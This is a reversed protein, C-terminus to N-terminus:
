NKILLIIKVMMHTEVCGFCWRRFGQGSRQWPAQLRGGHEGGLGQWMGRCVPLTAEQLCHFRRGWFWCAERRWGHVHGQTAVAQRLVCQVSCVACQVGCVACEVSDHVACQVSCVACRVSCAACESYWVACQVSCVGHAARQVTACQHVAAGGHRVAAVTM